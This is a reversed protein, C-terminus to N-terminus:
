PSTRGGTPCRASSRLDARHRPAALRGCIRAENLFRRVLHPQGQLEDHLLKVALDRGLHLDHARAAGPGHRRAGVGGAGRLGAAGARQAAGRRGRSGSGGPGDVGLGRAPRGRDGASPAAAGQTRAAEQVLAELEQQHRLVTAHEPLAGPVRGPRANGPAHRPAPPVRQLDPRHGVRPRRAPGPVEQLYAEAPVRQGAQWRQAPRGPAAHDVGAPRPGRGTSCPPWASCPPERRGPQSTVAPAHGPSKPPSTVEPM